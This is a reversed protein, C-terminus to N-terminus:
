SMMLQFTDANHSALVAFQVKNQEDAWPQEPSPQGNSQMSVEDLCQMDHTRAQLVRITKRYGLATAHLAIYPKLSDTQDHILPQIAKISNLYM